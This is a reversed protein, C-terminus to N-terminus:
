PAPQATSRRLAVDLGLLIWGLAMGAVGVQSLTNFITPSTESVLGLQDIGTLTLLSGIAVVWGGIRSVVGIADAAPRPRESAISDM